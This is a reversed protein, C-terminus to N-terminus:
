PIFKRSRLWFICDNPWPHGPALAVGHAGKEYIHLEFPVNAHRLAAAFELSNEVKVATDEWTHWIFCPPTNATVQLENSLLRVLDPSPNPGLLNKKSGQHADAGMSIVPYCLIGLDPRCSERDVPDSAEGNGSDFHTLLTSALHGGASSGIVGVRHPDVHWEAARARVLRVSRAADEIMRPHHYGESGLRYRVVFSAIGNTVLWEAYGKGEYDALAVYGGGPFIVMAARAAETANAPLFPTITPIDKEEKGLAGPAGNPWLPIAPPTQGRAFLAASFLCIFSFIRFM